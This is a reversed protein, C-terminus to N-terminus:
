KLESEPIAKTYVKFEVRRNKRRGEPNDSGDPNKNPEAPKSFSYYNYTVRDKSIGNALLWKHATKARQLSLELNYDYPGMADTHGSIDV